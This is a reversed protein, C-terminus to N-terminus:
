IHPRWVQWYASPCFNGSAPNSPADFCKATNYHLYQSLKKECQTSTGPECSLIASMEQQGKLSASHYSDLSKLNKCGSLQAVFNPQIDAELLRGVSTKGVFYNSVKKKNTDNLKAAAFADKYGARVWHWKNVFPSSFNPCFFTSSMPLYTKLQELSKWHSM